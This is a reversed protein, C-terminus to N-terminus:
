STVDEAPSTTYPTLALLARSMNEWSLHGAQTRLIQPIAERRLNGEVVRVCLEALVYFPILLLHRGAEGKMREANLIALEHFDPKGIVVFSVPSLGVGQGLVERAKEWRVNRLPDQSATAQIVIVGDPHRLHLDEEGHRQRPVRSCDLSLPPATLLDALSRDFGTGSERYAADLLDRLPATRSLRLSHSRCYRLQTDQVSVLAASRLAELQRPGIVGRFSDDPTDFLADISVVVLGRDNHLLKLLADRGVGRARLRALPVLQYPVGHRLEDSFRSLEAVTDPATGLHPALRSAAEVLWSAAEGLNRIAGLGVRFSSELDRVRTGETWGLMLLTKKLVMDQDRSPGQSQSLLAALMSGRPVDPRRTLIPRFIDRDREEPRLYPALGVAERAQLVYFLLDPRSCGHRTTALLADRILHYTSISIGTRAVAFGTRTAKLSSDHQEVLGLSICESIAQTVSTSLQDAFKHYFVHFAYSARFVAQAQMENQALQSSILSLVHFAFDQDM